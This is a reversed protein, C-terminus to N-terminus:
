LISQWAIADSYSHDSYFYDPKRRIARKNLWWLCSVQAFLPTKWPKLTQQIILFMGSLHTIAEVKKNFNWIWHFFMLTKLKWVSKEFTNLQPKVQRYFLFPLPTPATLNTYGGATPRWNSSRHRGPPGGAPMKTDRGMVPELLMCKKYPPTASAAAPQCTISPQVRGRVMWMEYCPVAKQHGGGGRGWGGALGKAVVAPVGGPYPFTRKGREASEADQRRNTM